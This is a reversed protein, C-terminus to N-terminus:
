KIVIELIFNYDEALVNSRQVGECLWESLNIKNISYALGKRYSWDSCSRLEKM